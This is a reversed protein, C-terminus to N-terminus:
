CGDFFQFWYKKDQYQWCFLNPFDVLDHLVDNPLIELRPPLDRVGDVGGAFTWKHKNNHESMRYVTIDENVNRSRLLFSLYKEPPRPDNKYKKNWKNQLKILFYDTSKTVPLDTFLNTVIENPDTSSDRDPTTSKNHNNKNNNNNNNENTNNDNHNNENTNNNNDKTSHKNNNNNNNNHPM